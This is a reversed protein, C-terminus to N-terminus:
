NCSDHLKRLEDDTLLRWQGPELGSLRLPGFDDRHLRVVPHGIAELMRKVQHKRGEHITVGVYSVDRGNDHNIARVAPDQPRYARAEAPSCLVSGRKEDPIRIGKRLPELDKDTVRGKVVAIYHKDHEYSPHLLKQALDGDTTFLLLGTTDTDLRGVAFLGPYRETPVLEAVCKRGHPDKMTTIYGAPKYLMLTTSGSELRYEIGDVCVTDVLPDVKSGLETVVKGNVTVRGATMLNEAGRRSAAGSRALFKQLRMPVVREEAM